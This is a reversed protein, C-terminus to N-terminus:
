QQCFLHMTSTYFEQAFVSSVIPKLQILTRVTQFTTGIHVQLKLTPPCAGQLHVLTQGM